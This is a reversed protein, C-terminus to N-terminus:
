SAMAERFAGGSSIHEWDTELARVREAVVAVAAAEATSWLRRQGSGHNDATASIYGRRAWWDLQRYSINALDCVEPSSLFGEPAPHRTSWKNGVSAASASM